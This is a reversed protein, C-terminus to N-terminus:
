GQHPLHTSVALADVADTGELAQTLLPIVPGRIPLVAYTLTQAPPQGKETPQATHQHPQCQATSHSTTGLSTEDSAVSCHVRWFQECPGLDEPALAQDNSQGHLAPSAGVIGADGKWCHLSCDVWDKEM